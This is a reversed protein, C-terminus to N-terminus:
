RMPTTETRAASLARCVSRWPACSSPFRPTPLVCEPVEQGGKAEARRCEAGPNATQLLLIAEHKTRPMLPQLSHQHQGKCGIVQSASTSVHLYLGTSCASAIGKTALDAM